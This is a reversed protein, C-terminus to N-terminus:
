GTSSPGQTSFYTDMGRLTLTGGFQAAQTVHVDTFVALPLDLPPEHEPDFVIPIVGYLNGQLRETYMTVTGDRFTSTSGPDTAVHNYVGEGEVIQHLDLIDVEDATFKLAQKVTGNETTINVVGHYDLGRLTLATAELYWPQDPVAYPTQEDTGAVQREEPCPFPEAGEEGTAEPAETAEAAPEGGTAEPQEPTGDGTAEDGAAVAPDASETSEANEAPDAHEAEDTSGADDEPETPEGPDGSSEPEEPETPEEPQEPVEPETPQEPETPVEPETPEAPTTDGEGGDDGDEGNGTGQDPTLLDLLGTGLDKLGQGLGLPDLPNTEEEPRTEASAEEEAAEEEPRRTGATDEAAIEPTEEEPEGSEESGEPEGSRDTEEAASEEEPAPAAAGTEEAEAEAAAPEEEGGSDRMEVCSTGGFPSDGQPDAKALPSTFGVGLVAASPMAALAIAKGVPMRLRDLVSRRPAAHRAAREDPSAAGTAIEESPM